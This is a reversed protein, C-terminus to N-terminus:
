FNKIYEVMEDGKLERKQSGFRVYLKNKALIPKETPTTRISCIIKGNVRHQSIRFLKDSVPDSLSDNLLSSLFLEYGDWNEKQPNATVYEREVGWLKGDDGVGILVTGKTESNLFAAVEELINASMRRKDSKNIHPDLCAGMKFEVQDNEGNTILSLIEVDTDGISPSPTAVLKFICQEFDSSEELKAAQNNFHIFMPDTHDRVMGLFEIKGKIVHRFSPKRPQYSKVPKKRWYKLEYEKEAADYGYKEWAHLMARIQRIFKRNVNVFENTTLGTVVQRKNKTQLRTKKKNIKFGNDDIITRLDSGIRILREEEESVVVALAAPFKRGRTSFTIDDAYRTYFCHHKAALTRLQSDMKACLMNSIIPSVPSGQPLGYDYRLCSIQALVTAVKDDLNYPFAMFMGRVRGFHISPFFHEIDLNLVYRRKIHQRANTVISREAVFGHVAPKPQYVTELVQSLKHQIIKLNPIPERIVRQGGHRKPITFRSYKKQDSLVFVTYELFSYSKLELLDAVDKPHQLM